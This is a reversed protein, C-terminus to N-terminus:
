HRTDWLYTMQLCHLGLISAVYQPMMDPDTSNAYFKCYHKYLILLIFVGSMSLIIFPSMCNMLGSSHLPYLPTLTIDVGTAM